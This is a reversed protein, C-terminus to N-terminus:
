LNEKLSLMKDAPIIHKFLSKCNVTLVSFSATMEFAGEDFEDHMLSEEDVFASAMAASTKPLQLKRQANAV